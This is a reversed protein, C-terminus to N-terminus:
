RRPLDDRDVVEPLPLVAYQGLWQGGRGLRWGGDALGERAESACTPVLTGSTRAPM